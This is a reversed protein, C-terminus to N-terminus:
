SYSLSEFKLSGVFVKERTSAKAAYTKTYFLGVVYYCARTRVYMYTRKM